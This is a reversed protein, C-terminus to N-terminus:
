TKLKLLYADLRLLHAVNRVNQPADVFELLVNRRNAEKKLKVMLGIGSSDIFRVGSLDVALRYEAHALGSMTAQAVAEVNVATIEGQWKVPDENGIANFQRVVNCERRRGAVLSLASNIDKTVSFLEKLKMLQLARELVPNSAALVLHRGDARASKQLRILAAIGTSDIFELNEFELVLDMSASILSQWAPGNSQTAAADFRPPMKVFIVGADRAETIKATADKCPVKRARLIRYQKFIASGFVWLDTVYRRFLRRPEQLLRFLWELGTKQMWQPARKM